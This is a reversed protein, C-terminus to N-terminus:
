RNPLRAQSFLRGEPFRESAWQAFSRPTVGAIENTEIADACVLRTTDWIDLNQGSKKNCDNCLPIVYLNKDTPSDKQILAGVTPTKICGEAFCLYARQGSLKEWYALWTGADSKNSSTGNTRRVKM